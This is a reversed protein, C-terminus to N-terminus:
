VEPRRPRWKPSVGSQRRALPRTAQRRSGACPACPCNRGPSCLWSASLTSTTAADLLGSYAM